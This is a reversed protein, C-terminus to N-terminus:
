QLSQEILTDRDKNVTDARRISLQLMETLKACQNTLSSPFPVVRPLPPLTPVLQPLPYPPVVRPLPPGDAHAPCDAHGSWKRRPRVV